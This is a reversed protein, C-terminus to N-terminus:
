WYMLHTLVRWASEGRGETKSGIGGTRFKRAYNERCNNLIVKGSWKLQNLSTRFVAVIERCPTAGVWTLSCTLAEVSQVPLM